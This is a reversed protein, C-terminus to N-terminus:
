GKGLVLDVVWCGRAHRRPSRSHALLELSGCGGEELADALIPLRDFAREDHITEPLTVLTSTRWSPSLVVPRFPNGFLDRLLESHTAEYVDRYAALSRVSTGYAEYQDARDPIRSSPLSPLGSEWAREPETESAALSASEAWSNRLGIGEFLEFGIGDRAAKLEDLSAAGDAFRESVQLARKSGEGLHDWILRCGASGFLRLKRDSPHGRLWALMRGPDTCALWEAETM